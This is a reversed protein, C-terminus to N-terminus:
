SEYSEEVEWLPDGEDGLFGYGSSLFSRLVAHSSEKDDQKDEGGEPRVLVVLSVLDHKHSIEELKSLFLCKMWVVADREEFLVFGFSFEVVEEINSSEDMPLQGSAFDKDITAGIDQKFFLEEVGMIGLMAALFGKGFV